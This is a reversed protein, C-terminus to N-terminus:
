FAPSVLFVGSLLPIDSHMSVVHSGRLMVKGAGGSGNEMDGRGTGTTPCM